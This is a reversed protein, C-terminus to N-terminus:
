DPNRAAIEHALDEAGNMGKAGESLLAKAGLAILIQRREMTMTEPMVLILNYGKARCVLALGIGTNGSTPEIVIKDKTLLGEKEGYEIMYKAIRDKVSGAPNYRELKGYVKVKKNPIIHNIRVLPTDGVLDVMDKAVRYM